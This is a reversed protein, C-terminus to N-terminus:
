QEKRKQLRKEIGIMKKTKMESDPMSEVKRKMELLNKETLRKALNKDKEHHKKHKLLKGKDKMIKMKHKLLKGKDKMIKMKHKKHQFNESDIAKDRYKKKEKMKYKKFRPKDIIKKNETSLNIKDKDVNFSAEDMLHSDSFAVVSVFFLVVILYLKINM